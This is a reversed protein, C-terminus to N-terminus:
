VVAKRHTMKVIDRTQHIYNMTTNASEHGMITKIVILDVDNNAMTTATTHRLIHPTVPHSLNNSARMALNRIIKQVGAIGIPNYPRRDSVFLADHDDVRSALYEKVAVEAKANVYSTRYKKGKGFLLVTGEKFDIDTKKLNVLEAVRCGTSYFLELIAREKLTNCAKRLYELEMQSCYSREKAEYKIAKISTTPDKPIYEEAAAWKFFSCIYGRIKDLSRDSVGREEQYKHLFVRVDLATVDQPAKQVQWFFIKLFRHFNDLTGAAYGEVKRSVLYAKVMDPLEQNFPVIQTEKKVVDYKYAVVDLCAIVERVTDSDLDRKVLEVLVENKMQEYM